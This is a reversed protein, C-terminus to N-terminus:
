PKVLEVIVTKVDTGSEAFTGAPLEKVIRGHEAVFDRFETRIKTSGFTFGPSMIAYLKGGPKLWQFAHRIHKIDQDNTFPPNMLIRDARPNPKVEMFDAMQIDFGENMLKGAAEPNMEICYVIAGAEKIARAIAGGGASPELCHMGAEIGALEVMEAVVSDPTYFAQFHKKENLLEGTDLLSKIKERAADNQFLHRKKGKHWKAGALDLFVNVAEYTKRELQEGPLTLGDNDITARSLIDLIEPTAQEVHKSAPATAPEEPADFLSTQPMAKTKPSPKSEQKVKPVPPLYEISSLFHDAIERYDIQSLAGALLDGYVGNKPSYPIGKTLEEELELAYEIAAHEKDGAHQNLHREATLHTKVYQKADNDMWLSVVWSEYTSWGEYGNVKAKTELRELRRLIANIEVPSGTNEDNM